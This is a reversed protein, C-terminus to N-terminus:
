RSTTCTMGTRADHNRRKNRKKRPNRSCSTTVLYMILKTICEHTNTTEDQFTIRVCFLRLTRSKPHFGAHMTLLKRTMIDTAETQARAWSIIGASYRILFLVIAGKLSEFLNDRLKEEGPVM